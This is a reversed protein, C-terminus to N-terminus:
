VEYKNDEETSKLVYINYCLTTVNNNYYQLCITFL